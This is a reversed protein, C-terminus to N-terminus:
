FRLALGVSLGRLLFDMTEDDKNHEKYAVGLWTAGGWLEVHEILRVFVRGDFELYGFAKGSELWTAARM